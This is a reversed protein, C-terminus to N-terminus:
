LSVEQMGALDFRKLKRADKLDRGYVKMGRDPDTVLEVVEIERDQTVKGDKTIYGFHLPKMAKRAEIALAIKEDRTM